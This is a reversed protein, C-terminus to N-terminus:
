HSVGRYFSYHFGPYLGSCRHRGAGTQTTLRYPFHCFCGPSEGAEAYGRNQDCAYKAKVTNGVALRGIFRGRRFGRRFVGAHRGGEAQATMTLASHFRGCANQLVGHGVLSVGICGKALTVVGTFAAMAGAFRVGHAAALLWGRNFEIGFGGEFHFILGAQGTMALLTRMKVPWAGCVIDLAHGAIVTVLNVLSDIGHHIYLGLGLDAVGAVLLLAGLKQALRSVRHLSGAVREGM